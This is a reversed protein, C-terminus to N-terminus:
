ENPFHVFSISPRKVGHSEAVTLIVRGCLTIADLALQATEAEALRITGHFLGSRMGYIRDWEKRLHKLGLRTLMRMVGQRLGIRHLSRRLAEAVELHEADRDATRNEVQTALEDILAAQADTWKEDQGLAEIASLALVIQALPQTNILALNLIRVGEAATSLQVPIGAALEALANVFQEPDSRVTFQAQIIPVRTNEDDPVVSLGHVNPLLRQHPQIFGISRAYDENMSTTPRDLGVDIGSRTCLGAFETITRLQEGFYRAEEESSFGRARLVIWLAESLPEDPMQSVVTVERGALNMVRSVDATNLANARLV